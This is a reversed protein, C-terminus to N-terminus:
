RQINKLNRTLWNNIDLWLFSQRCISIVNKVSIGFRFVFIFFRWIKTIGIFSDHIARLFIQKAPRMRSVPLSLKVRRGYQTENDRIKKLMRGASWKIKIIRDKSVELTSLSFCFFSWLHNRILRIVWKITKVKSIETLHRKNTHKTLQAQNAFSNSCFSCNKPNFDLTTINTCDCEDWTIIKNYFDSWSFVWRLYLTPYLFINLYIEIFM